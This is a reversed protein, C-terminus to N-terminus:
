RKVAAHKRESLNAYIEVIRRAKRSWEFERARVVAAASMRNRLDASKALVEIHQAMKQVVDERSHPAIRFGSDDTVYEAIGGYDTVICPLGAAM